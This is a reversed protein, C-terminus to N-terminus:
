ILVLSRPKSLKSNESSQRFFSVSKGKIFNQPKKIKTKKKKQAFMPSFHHRTFQLSKFLKRLCSILQSFYIFLNKKKILPIKFPILTTFPPIQSSIILSHSSQSCKHSIVIVGKSQATTTTIENLLTLTIQTM